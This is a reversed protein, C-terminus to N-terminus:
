FSAGICFGAWATASYGQNLQLSEGNAPNTPISLYDTHSVGLSFFTNFNLGRNGKYFYGFSCTASSRTYSTQDQFIAPQVTNADSFFYTLTSNFGMMRWVPGFYFQHAPILSFYYYVGLGAEYKKKTENLDYNEENFSISQPPPIPSFAAGFPFVLHLPRRKLRFEYIVAIENSILNILNLQLEHRKTKSETLETLGSSKTQRTTDLPPFTSYQIIPGNRLQVLLIDKAPLTYPRKNKQYRRTYTVQFSDHQIIDAEILNNNKLYLLDQAQLPPCLTLIIAYGFILRM